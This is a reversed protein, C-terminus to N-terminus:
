CKRGRQVMGIDLIQILVVLVLALCSFVFLVGVIKLVFSVALVPCGTM